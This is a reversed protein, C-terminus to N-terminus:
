LKGTKLQLVELLRRLYRYYQINKWVMKISMFAPPFVAVRFARNGPVLFSIIKNKIKGIIFSGLFDGFIAAAFFDRDGALVRTRSFIDQHCFSDRFIEAARLVNNFCSNFIEEPATPKSLDYPLVTVKIKFAREFDQKVAQLKEERRAVLILDHGHEACIKAFEYGIGSSAGTILANFRLKM